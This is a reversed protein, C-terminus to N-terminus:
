MCRRPNKPLLHCMISHSNPIRKYSHMKTKHLHNKELPSKQESIITQAKKPEKVPKLMPMPKIPLNNNNNTQGAM